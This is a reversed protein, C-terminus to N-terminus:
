ASMCSQRFLEGSDDGIRASTAVSATVEVGVKVGVANDVEVTIVSAVGTKEVVGPNKVM